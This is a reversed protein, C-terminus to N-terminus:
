SVIAGKLTALADEPLKTNTALWEQVEHVSSDVTITTAM